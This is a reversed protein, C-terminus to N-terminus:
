DVIDDMDRYARGGRNGHDVAVQALSGQRHLRVSGASSRAIKRWVAHGGAAGRRRRPLDDRRSAVLFPRKGAHDARPRMMAVVDPM